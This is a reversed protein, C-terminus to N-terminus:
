RCTEHIRKILQSTSFKETPTIVIQAGVEKCVAVVDLELGEEYDVGKVFVAPRVERLAELGSKSSIVESVCRLERLLAARHEWPWIPMGPKKGVFADETLAVVLTDGLKRAYQLHLLHGYHLLDFCGNALVIRM